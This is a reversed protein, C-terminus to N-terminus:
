AVADPAKAVIVRAPRLLRGNLLYGKQVTQFVTGPTVEASAQMAMAEQHEPNFAEGRTPNIESVGVRELVTILLKLTMEMGEKLSAAAQKTTAIGMELSDRVPLLEQLFRELAFKHAHELDRQSRKRLNDLEAVARLYGDWNQAAKQRAEALATKLEAMPDSAAAEAQPAQQEGTETAPASQEKSM